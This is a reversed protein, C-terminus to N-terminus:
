CTKYLSIGHSTLWAFRISICVTLLSFFAQFSILLLNGSFTSTVPFAHFLATLMLFAPITHGLLTWHYAQRTVMDMLTFANVAKKPDM